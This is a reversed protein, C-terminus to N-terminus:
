SGDLNSPLRVFERQAKARYLTGKLHFFNNSFIASFIRCNMQNLYFLFQIQEM